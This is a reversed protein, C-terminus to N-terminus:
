LWELPVAKAMKQYATESPHLHDGSDYGPAFAEPRRSDRIAKNFDVVDDFYLDSNQETMKTAIRELAEVKNTAIPKEVKYDASVKGTLIWHNFQEMMVERFPEYTRWGYIPILTGGYVKLNAARAPELYYKETGEIMEGVTPLQQWPRFPNVEYGVPHIIDNIGHQILVSSAGSTNLVEIPFRTQGKLGYAAYTINDYQGLIRTGSVARRIISVNRKGKAYARLALDDPWSQATISDGFCIFAHNEEYTLVDLTNM